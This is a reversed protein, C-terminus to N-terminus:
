LSRIGTSCNNNKTGGGEEFREIMRYLKKFAWENKLVKNKNNQVRDSSLLFRTDYVIPLVGVIVNATM